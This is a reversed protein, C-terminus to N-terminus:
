VRLFDHFENLIDNDTRLEVEPGTKPTSLYIWLLIILWCFAQSTKSVMKQHIDISIRLM